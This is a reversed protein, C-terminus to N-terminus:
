RGIYIFTLSNIKLFNRCNFVFVKQTKRFFNARIVLCLFWLDSVYRMPIWKLTKSFLAELLDSVYTPANCLYIYIYWYLSTYFGMPVCNFKLFTLMCSETGRKHANWPGHRALYYYLFKYSLLWSLKKFIM